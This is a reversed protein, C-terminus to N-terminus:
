GPGTQAARRGGVPTALVGPSLGTVARALSDGRPDPRKCAGGRPGTGLAWPFRPTARVTRRRGVQGEQDQGQGQGQDEDKTKAKKVATLKLHAKGSASPSVSVDTATVTVTGATTKSTITARYAGGATASVSGVKAPGSVSVKVHQLRVTEKLVGTLTVTVTAKAKGDASITAPSVKVTVKPAAQKLTATASPHSAASSDTATVTATGVKESGTITATYVGGGADTVPGVKQGADSSTITLTEGALPKGSRTVHVTANTTALGDATIRAPSLALALKPPIPTSSLPCVPAGGCSILVDSDGPQGLITGTQGPQGAVALLDDEGYPSDGDYTLSAAGSANAWGSAPEDFEWIGATAGAGAGQSVGYDAVYVSSASAAVALGFLDSQAPASSTLEAAQQFGAGSATFVYASGAYEDAGVTEYPAGAVITSGSVGLSLGFSADAQPSAATLEAADGESTWGGTGENFAYAAGADYGASGVTQYPDGVVITSGSMAVDAGALGDTPSGSATLTASPAATSAWGGTPESYVYAGGDSGPTSSGVALTTGSLAFSAGGNSFAAGSPPTITATASQDAVSAWGGAPMTFMQIAAVNGASGVAITSGSIAVQTGFESNATYGGAPALVASQTATQWGAAPETFVYAGGAYTDSGQAQDPAGVVITEASTAVADGFGSGAGAGTATLTPDIEIPFRAGAARVRLTLRRGALTMAVPLPRGRADAASLDTYSLVARGARDLLTLTGDALRPALNGTIAFTYALDTARTRAITLGQELGAPGNAYWETVGPRRFSVVNRHAVPTVGAAVTQAAAAGYGILSLGLQDGARSVLVRGPAFRESLGLRPTRAVLAAGARHLWYAQEYGGLGRSVALAAATSIALPDPGAARHAPVPAVTAESLRAQGTVVAILLACGLAALAALLTARLSPGRAGIRAGATTAAPEARMLPERM